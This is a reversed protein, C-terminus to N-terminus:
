AREPTTLCANYPLRTWALGVADLCPGGLCPPAPLAPRRQRSTSPMGLRTTAPLAQCPVASCPM